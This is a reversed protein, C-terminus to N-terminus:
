FPIDDDDALPRIIDRRQIWNSQWGSETITILRGDKDFIDITLKLYDERERNVWEAVSDTDLDKSLEAQYGKAELWTDLEDRNTFYVRYQTDTAIACVHLNSWICIRAIM